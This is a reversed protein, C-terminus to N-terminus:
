DVRAGVAKVTRGWKAIEAKLYAGFEASTSPVPDFGQAALQSRVEPTRLASALERSLRTITEPPTGAPAVLGSWTSAEYGPLGAEAMSPVGPATLSRRATGVALARLRGSQAHPMLSATAAFMMNVQGSILDTVAQPTGKYPVHVIDIGAQARFMEAALHPSSGSGTSGYNLQGPRAKAFAILDKVSRVPLSPHVALVLPASAILGIPDFDKELDYNLKSYLAPNITMGAVIVLLTYGDPAARAVAEAAINGAAGPRNELVFQQGFAASLRPVAVRAAIDAGSAAATAVVVRVPRGPYSVSQAQAASSAAALAVVCTVRLMRGRASCNTHWPSPTIAPIKM